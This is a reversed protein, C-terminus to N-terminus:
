EINQVQERMQEILVKIEVAAQTVETSISKSSLTNGERNLEQMLFDLRRGIPESKKLVNRIEKIHASLRDLEEAIDIKQALHVLEQELRLPDHEINIEKFRAILKDRYNTTLTPFIKQVIKTQTEIGTLRTKICNELEAGETARAKIFDKLTDKLLKQCDAKLTDTDIGEEENLVGPFRLLQQANLKDAAQTLTLLEGHMDLLQKVYPANLSLKKALEQEPEFSFHADVKGRSLAKKIINRFDFEADRLAYPLKVSIDLFRHNVSKLQWTLQGYKTKLTKSAFATMSYIM